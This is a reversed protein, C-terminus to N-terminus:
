RRGSPPKDFNGSGDGRLEVGDELIKKSVIEQDFPSTRYAVYPRSKPNAQVEQVALAMWLAAALATLMTKSMMDKGGLADKEKIKTNSRDCHRWGDM